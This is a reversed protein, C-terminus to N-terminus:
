KVEAKYEEDTVPKLWNVQSDGKYNTIVVHTMASTSSAGHWHDINPDCLIVDGKNITRIPKGKEQYLGKGETVLLTQGAPHNHWFARAGPEFTVSAVSFNNNENKPALLQVYVTGTFTEAPAKDGKPFITNETKNETKEMKANERNASQQNSCGAALFLAACLILGITIRKM